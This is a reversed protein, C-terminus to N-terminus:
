SEPAKLFVYKINQGMRKTTMLLLTTLMIKEMKVGEGALEEGVQIHSKAENLRIKNIKDGVDQTNGLRISVTWNEHKEDEWCCTSM